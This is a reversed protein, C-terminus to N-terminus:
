LLLFGFVMEYDVVGGNKVFYWLDKLFEGGRTEKMLLSIKLLLYCKWANRRSNQVLLRCLRTNTTLPLKVRVPIGTQFFGDM